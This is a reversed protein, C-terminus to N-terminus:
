SVDTGGELVWALAAAKARGAIMNALDADRGFQGYASAATTARELHESMAHLIESRARVDESM